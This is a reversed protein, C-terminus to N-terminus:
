GATVFRKLDAINIKGEYFAKGFIVAFVGLDQLQQIDEGSRVGGAAVICANPFRSVLDAYLGFNPGVMTGDRSVDTVKVYKLGRNYYYDIHEILDVDTQKQWGSIMVKGGVEDASLTVKERGYSFLWQTFLEKDKVPVSAVSIFSAGFEWVKLIDGDTRLGGAFVIKLGTHGAIAEIVPYAEPSGKIAGDLDVLHVMEIGIEEFIRAFDVPSDEYIKERLYDGGAMRVVKGKSVSILPILKIM